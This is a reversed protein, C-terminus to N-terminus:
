GEGLAVLRAALGTATPRDIADVVRGDAMVLARDAEAAAGPDHTVMVVTQALEDVLERLLGLVQTAGARDLAGTPEDAFVVAPRAVLARAIAARQQQGGSLEGPRRGLHGGLGVRDLLFRVRDLDPARGALRLPLTVNDAVSLAPLLNYAQFVFGVSERRLETRRTEDLGGIERGALLVQGSTPTDLGAACHLLTSKGSGSPGMVALFTGTPVALDVADLARVDPPHIRTVGVLQVAPPAEAVAASPAAAPAATM